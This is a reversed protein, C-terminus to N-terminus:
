DPFYYVQFLYESFMPFVLLNQKFIYIFDPLKNHFPLVFCYLYVSIEFICWSLTYLCPSFLIFNNYKTMIYIAVNVFFIKHRWSENFFNFSLFQLTLILLLKSNIYLAWVQSLFVLALDSQFRSTEEYNLCIDIKHDISWM